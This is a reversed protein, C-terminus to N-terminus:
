CDAECTLLPVSAEARLLHRSAAISAVGVHIALVAIVFVLSKM